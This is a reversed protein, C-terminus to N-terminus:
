SGRPMSMSSTRRSGWSPPSRRPRGAAPAAAARLVELGDRSVTARVRPLVVELIRKRHQSPVSEELGQSASEDAESFRRVWEEEARDRVKKQRVRDVLTTYTLKWLYTRFRGRRRDLEFTPLIEMLRCFVEQTLDNADHEKLGLSRLYGFILPRYIAHFERWSEATASTACGCWSHSGPRPCPSRERVWRITIRSILAMTSGPTLTGTVRRALNLFRAVAIRSFGPADGPQGEAADQGSVRQYARRAHVKCFVFSEPVPNWSPFSRPDFISGSSPGDGRRILAMRFPDAFPAPVASPGTTYRLVNDTPLREWVEVFPGM